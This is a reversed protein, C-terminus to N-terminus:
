GEECGVADAADAVTRTSRDLRQVTVDLGLDRASDMVKERM